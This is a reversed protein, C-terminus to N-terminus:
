GSSFPTGFIFSVRFSSPLLKTSVSCLASTSGPLTFTSTAECVNERIKPPTTERTKGIIAKPKSIIKRIRRRPPGPPSMINPMPLLRALSNTLPLCDIVNLSTAPTSSAFFSKSSTTSKRFCGLFYRSNPALVGFPTSNTPGAPTPLVSKAFATAPSAPTGKKEIAPDSNISISTPTPAERTRSRKSVAFFAAGDIIKMSSNSAIPRIRPM